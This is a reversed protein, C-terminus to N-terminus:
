KGGGRGRDKKGEDEDDIRDRAEAQDPIFGVVRAYQGDVAVTCALRVGRIATEDDIDPADVRGRFTAAKGMVTGTGSFHNQKLTLNCVLLGKDGSATTVNSQLSISTGAVTANGKGTVYGAVTFTYGGQSPRPKGKALARDAPWLGM